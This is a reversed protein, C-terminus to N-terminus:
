ARDEPRPAAVHGAAEAHSSGEVPVQPLHGPAGHGAGPSAPHSLHTTLCLLTRTMVLFAPAHARERDRGHREQLPQPESGLLSVDAWAQKAWLEKQPKPLSSPAHFWAM